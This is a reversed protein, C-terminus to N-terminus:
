DEIKDYTDEVTIYDLELQIARYDIIRDMDPPGSLMENILIRVCIKANRLAVGRDYENTLMGSGTYCYM